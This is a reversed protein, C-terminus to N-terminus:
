LSSSISSCIEPMGYTSSAAFLEIKCCSSIKSAFIDFMKMLGLPIEIFMYVLLNTERLLLGDFSLLLLSVIM